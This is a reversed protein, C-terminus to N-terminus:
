IVRPHVQGTFECAAKADRRAEAAFFGTTGHPRGGGSGCGSPPVGRLVGAAEGTLVPPGQRERHEGASGGGSSPQSEIRVKSRAARVLMAWHAARASEPDQKQKLMEDAPIIGSRVIESINVNGNPMAWAAKINEADAVYADPDVTKTTTILETTLRILEREHTERLKKDAAARDSDRRRALDLERTIRSRVQRGGKGINLLLTERSTFALSQGITTIAQALDDDLAHKIAAANDQDDRMEAHYKAANYGEVMPADHKLRSLLFGMAHKISDAQSTEIVHEVYGPDTCRNSTKALKRATEESMEADVLLAVVVGVVDSAPPIATPTSTEARTNNNNYPGKPHEQNLSGSPADHIDRTGPCKQCELGSLNSAASAVSEPLEAAPPTVPAPNDKPLLEDALIVYTNRDRGGGRHVTILRAAELEAILRQVQRRSKGFSKGLTTVAPYCSWQGNADQGAYGFIAWFLAVAGSSVNALRGSKTLMTALRAKSYGSSEEGTRPRNPALGIKTARSGNTKGIQCSPQVTHALAVTGPHPNVM